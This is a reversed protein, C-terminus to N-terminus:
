FLRRKRRSNIGHQGNLLTLIKELEALDLGSEPFMATEESMDNTPEPAKFNKMDDQDPIPNPYGTRGAFDTGPAHYRQYLPNEHWPMWQGNAGQFSAQNNKLSNSQGEVNTGTLPLTNAACAQCNIIVSVLVWCTMLKGFMTEFIKYNPLM